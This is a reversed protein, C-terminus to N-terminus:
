LPLLGRRMAISVAEARSGASLKALIQSVHFKATHESVHLERAIAKNGLGAALAHLVEIERPTLSEPLGEAGEPASALEENILDVHAVFLGASTAEIAAIVEDATARAPLLGVGSRLERLSAAVELDDTMMVVAVSAAHALQALELSASSDDCVIVDAAGLGFSEVSAAALPTSEIQLRDSAGLIRYLEERLRGNEVVFAVKIRGNSM